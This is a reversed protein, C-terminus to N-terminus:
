STGALSRAPTESTTPSPSMTLSLGTRTSDPTNAGSSVGFESMDVGAHLNKSSGSLAPNYIMVATASPRRGAAFDRSTTNIRSLVHPAAQIEHKSGTNSRQRTSVLFTMPTGNHMSDAMAQSVPSSASATPSVSDLMIGSALKPFFEHSPKPRLTLGKHNFKASTPTGYGSMRPSKSALGSSVRVSSQSRAANPLPNLHPVSSSRQSRDRVLLADTHQSVAQEDIVSGAMSGRAGSNRISSSKWVASRNLADSSDSRKFGHSSYQLSSSGAGGITFAPSSEKRIIARRNSAKSSSGSSSSSGSGSGFLPNALKSGLLSGRRRWSLKGDDTRLSINNEPSLSYRELMTPESDHFIHSTRNPSPRGTKYKSFANALPSFSTSSETQQSLHKQRQQLQLQEGAAINADADPRIRSDTSGKPAAAAVPQDNPKLSSQAPGSDATSATAQANENIGSSSILGIATTPRSASPSPIQSVEYEDAEAIAAPAPVGRNGTSLKSAASSLEDEEALEGLDISTRDSSSRGLLGRLSSKLHKSRSSGSSNNANEKHRSLSLSLRGM